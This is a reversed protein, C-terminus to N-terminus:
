SKFVQNQLQQLLADTWDASYQTRNLTGHVISAILRMSVTNDYLIVTDCIPYVKLFNEQSKIFRREITEGTVGHGGLAIRKEVREKAIQPNEVGIYRLHISYGLEKAQRITKLITIGSLTTEQNFSIGKELCEKQLRLMQKGATIQANPDKWNLGLSHLIEDSNLRVGLNEKPETQYLTSKGAGNVGAFIIFKKTNKM